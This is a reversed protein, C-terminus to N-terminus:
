RNKVVVASGSKDPILVLGEPKDAMYDDVAQKVGPWHGSAYDHMILMAGPNLRPYFFEMGAKIPAYLDCDLQVLAFRTADPVQSATAPFRGVCYTVSSESGVFSRVGDLSTDAFDGRKVPASVAAEEADVDADDFGGFTDFLYLQREPALTHLVKASNGKYVGLEAFAGTVGQAQLQRVTAQLFYLRTIDGHNNAEMGRGWVAQLQAFASQEAAPRQHNIDADPRYQLYFRSGPQNFRGLNRTLTRVFERRLLEGFSRKPSGKPAPKGVTISSAAPAPNATDPPM